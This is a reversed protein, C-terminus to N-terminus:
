IVLSSNDSAILGILVCSAEKVVSLTASPFLLYKVFARANLARVPCVDANVALLTRTLLVEPFIAALEIVDVSSPYKLPTVLLTCVCNFAFAEAEDTLEREVSTAFLASLLSKSSRAVFSSNVDPKLPLCAVNIEPVLILVISPM